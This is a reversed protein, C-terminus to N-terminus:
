QDESLIGQLHPRVESTSIGMGLQDNHAPVKSSRSAGIMGGIICRPHDAPPQQGPQQLSSTVLDWPPFTAKHASACPCCKNSAPKATYNNATVHSMMICQAKQTVTSESHNKRNKYDDTAFGGIVGIMWIRTAPMRTEAGDSRETAM